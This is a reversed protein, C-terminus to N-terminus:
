RQLELKAAAEDTSGPVNFYDKQNTSLSVWIANTAESAGGVDIAACVIGLVLIVLGYFLVLFGQYQLLMYSAAEHCEYLFLLTVIAMVFYTISSGTSMLIGNTMPVANFLMMLILFIVTSFATFANM